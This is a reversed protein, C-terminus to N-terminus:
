KEMVPKTISQFHCVYASIACSILHLQIIVKLLPNLSVHSFVGSGPLIQLDKFFCYFFFFPTLIELIEVRLFLTFAHDREGRIKFSEERNPPSGASAPNLALLSGTM